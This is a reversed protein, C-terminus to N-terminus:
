AHTIKRIQVNGSLKRGAQPVDTEWLFRWKYGHGPLYLRRYVLYHTHM